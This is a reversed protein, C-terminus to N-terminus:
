QLIKKYGTFPNIIIKEGFNFCSLWNVINQSETWINKCNIYLLGVTREPKVQQGKVVVARRAFAPIKEM